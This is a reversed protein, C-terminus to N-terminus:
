NQESKYLHNVRIYDIVRRPLMTDLAENTKISERIKTSSQSKEKMKIMFGFGEPKAKLEFYSTVVKFGALELLKKVQSSDYGPRNLIILQCLGALREWQHWARLEVLSDMGIVLRKALLPTEKTISLLTDVTFSPQKRYQERKDIYCNKVGLTALALMECRHSFSAGPTSKLPPIACPVLRISLQPDLAILAEIIALHGYHFPDFTGGLLFEAGLPTGQPKLLDNSM